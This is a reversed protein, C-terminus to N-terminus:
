LVESLMKRLKERIRDLRREAAKVTIGLERAIQPATQRYYYKRYFMDYEFASLQSLAYRLLEAQEKQVLLESPELANDELGEELSGTDSSPGAKKHFSIATNRSIVTLWGTWSGRASDFKEINNWVRMCIDNVCEERDEESQLIPSVIYRMLPGFSRLLEEAGKEDRAQILKILEKEQM